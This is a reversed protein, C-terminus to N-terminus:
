KSNEQKYAAVAAEVLMAIVADSVDDAQVSVRCFDDENVTFDRMGVVWPTGASDTQVDATCVWAGAAANVTTVAGVGRIM